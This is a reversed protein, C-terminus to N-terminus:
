CGRLDNWHKISMVNTLVLFVCEKALETPKRIEDSKVNLVQSQTQHIAEDIKKLADIMMDPKVAKAWDVARKLLTEALEYAKFGSEKDAKQRHRSDAILVMQIFQIATLAISTMRM